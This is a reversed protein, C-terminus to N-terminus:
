APHMYARLIWTQIMAGNKRNRSKLTAIAVIPAGDIQSPGEYIIFGSM